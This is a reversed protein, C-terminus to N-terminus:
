LRLISFIHWQLTADHLLKARKREHELLIDREADALNRSAEYRTVAQLRALKLDTDSLSTATVISAPHTTNGAHQVV